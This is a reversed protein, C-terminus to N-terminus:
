RNQMEALRLSMRWVRDPCRVLRDRYRGMAVISAHGGEGEDEADVRAFYSDVNAADGDVEIAPDAVLHKHYAAPPRTHGVAFALLQERGEARVFTEGSRSRVEFVGDETFCEVWDQERGYDLAHGYRYLTQLIAREDELAALRAVIGEISPSSV